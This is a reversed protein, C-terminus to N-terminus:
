RTSDDKDEEKNDGRKFFSGFRAAGQKFGRAAQGALPALKSRANDLAAPAQQGIARAVRVVPSTDAPSIPEATNEFQAFRYGLFELGEDFRAVRTKRPHLELRLAALQEATQQLAARAEAETRCCIVFDDAYRVLRWGARRMRLDFEHLYLNALLPSLAGGQVIGRLRDDDSQRYRRVARAVGPAAAAALVAAGTVALGVPSMLRRARGAYSLAWMLGAGGARKLAEKRAQRRLAEQAEPGEALLEDHYPHHAANMMGRDNFDDFDNLGRPGLLNAMAGDVTETVLGSVGGLLGGGAEQTKPLTLGTQLWLRVLQQFRKDRIRAAFLRMLLEHNLSGFYDSIDADVLWEDGAARYDLIQKVAMPVNRGPRFGFSCDLFSPECLPELADKAARQAVSDELTYIGLQRTGGGTKRIEVARVPLPYYRGELLRRALADLNAELDRAYEALSVQDIGAAVRGSRVAKWAALLAERRCMGDFANLHKNM